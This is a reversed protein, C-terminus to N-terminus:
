YHRATAPIFQWPGSAKAPSAASKNWHSEGLALFVVDFPVGYKQCAEHVTKLDDGENLRKWGAILEDRFHTIGGPGKRHYVPDLGLYRLRWKEIAADNYATDEKSGKPVAIKWKKPNVLREILEAKSPDSERAEAIAPLSATLALTTAGAFLRRRSMVPGAAVSPSTDVAGAAVEKNQTNVNKLYFQNNKLIFM